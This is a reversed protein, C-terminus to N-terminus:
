KQELNGNCEIVTKIGTGEFLNEFGREWNDLTVIETIVADPSFAKRKLLEISERWSSPKQSRSGIYEIEKHLILDTEITEQPKPFVGMQIVQGKKRVIQFGKNVAPVAGSCEFVIDVGVNNTIKAILVDINEKQQNITIDVGLGRAIDFREEDADLGAIIVFAGIYKAAQAVMLGITSSGFICIVDGKKTKSKELVAHVGCALPEMLSGTLLSVNDPLVHIAEERSIVYEAMGGNKTTGLGLRNSCLNYDKSKCSSCVGCTSYTTESTVRQGVKLNEVDPGVEVIVGSFEHGLIVPAKGYVGNYMHLDTGCIGAYAVQIKVEDKETKPEFVDVLSVNGIGKKTKMLAKM